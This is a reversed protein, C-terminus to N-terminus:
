CSGRRQLHQRVLREGGDDTRRRVDGNGYRDYQGIKNDGSDYVGIRDPHNEFRYTYDVSSASASMSAGLAGIAALSAAALTKLKTTM